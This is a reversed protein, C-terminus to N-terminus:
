AQFRGCISCRGSTRTPFTAGFLGLAVVLARQSWPISQVRHGCTCADDDTSAPVFGEDILEREFDGRHYAEVVARARALEV